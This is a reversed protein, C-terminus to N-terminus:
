CMLVAAICCCGSPVAVAAAPRSTPVLGHLILLWHWAHGLLLLLLVHGQLLLARPWTTLRPAGKIPWFRAGVPRQINPVQGQMNILLRQLLDKAHIPGDHVYLHAKHYSYLIRSPQLYHFISPM